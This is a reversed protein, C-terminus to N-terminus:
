QLQYLEQNHRVRRERACSWINQMLNKKWFVCDYEIWHCKHRHIAKTSWLM